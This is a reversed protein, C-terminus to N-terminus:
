TVYGYNQLEDLKMTYKDVKGIFSGQFCPQYQEKKKERRAKGVQVDSNKHRDMMFYM